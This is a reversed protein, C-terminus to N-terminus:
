RTEAGSMPEFIRAGRAVSNAQWRSPASMLIWRYAEPVSLGESIPGLTGEARDAARALRRHHPSETASDGLAPTIIHGGRRNVWTPVHKIEGVEWGEETSDLRVLLIAGEESEPPCCPATQNSLLNGMSYIVTKTSMQSIPQLVHPHHGVVLDVARDALLLDALSRQGASPSGSFENGWHLSVVTFDAGRRKLEAADELIRETDIRNALWPRDGPDGRNQFGYSYSAHGVVLGGLDYLVGAAGGPGAATGAHGLGSAELVRITGLVGDAGRDFTHNSATSCGDFGASALGMALEAPASFIPFGGIQRSDPDLPVELHCLALDVSQLIISVEAFMPSFDYGEGGAHRAASASVAPHALTDGTLALVYSRRTAAAGSPDRLAEDTSRFPAAVAAASMTSLWFALTVAILRSGSM